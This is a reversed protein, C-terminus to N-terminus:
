SLVPEVWNTVVSQACSTCSTEPAHATSAGSSPRLTKCSLALVPQHPFGADLESIPFLSQLAFGMLTPLQFLSGRTLLRLGGHPYGFGPPPVKPPACDRGFTRCVDSASFPNKVKMHQLTASHLLSVRIAANPTGFSRAPFL